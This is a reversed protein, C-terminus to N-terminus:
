KSRNKKLEEQLCRRADALAADVEQTHQQERSTALSLSDVAETIQATTLDPALPWHDYLVDDKIAQLLGRRELVAECRQEIKVFPVNINVASARRPIDRRLYEAIVAPPIPIGTLSTLRAFLAPDATLFERDFDVYLDAYKQGIVQSIRWLYYAREYSHQGDGGMIEPLYFMLNAAFTSGQYVSLWRPVKLDANDKAAMSIWQERPDRVIYIIKAHPFQKRLWALRFDLRVCKLVPIKEGALNILATLYTKLEPYSDKAALALRTAGFGMRYLSLVQERHQRLEHFYDAVGRHTADPAAPHDLHTALTDHLPEYMAFAEDSHRLINWLATTGSRFRGVIFVPSQRPARLRDALQHLSPLNM